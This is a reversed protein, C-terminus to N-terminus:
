LKLNLKKIQYNASLVIKSKPQDVEIRGREERNMLTEGLGNLQTLTRVGMTGGLITTKNFNAAVNLPEEDIKTFLIQYFLNLFYIKM